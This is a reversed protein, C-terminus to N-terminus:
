LEEEFRQFLETLSIGLGACLRLLNSFCLNREGREIGGIYSRDLGALFGLQEQSLGKAERNKRVVRGLCQLANIDNEEKGV